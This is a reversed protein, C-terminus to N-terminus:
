DPICSAKIFSVKAAHTLALCFLRERLLNYDVRAEVTQRSGIAKNLVKVNLSYGLTVQAKSNLIELAERIIKLM